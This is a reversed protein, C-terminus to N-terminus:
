QGMHKPKQTPMNTYAMEKLVSSNVKSNFQALGNSSPENLEPVEYAKLINNPSSPIL